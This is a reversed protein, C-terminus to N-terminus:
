KKLTLKNAAAPPAGSGPPTSTMPIREQPVSLEDM